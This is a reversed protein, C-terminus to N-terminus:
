RATRKTIAPFNALRHNLPAPSASGGNLCNHCLTGQLDGCLHRRRINRASDGHWAEGLGVVNLDEIALLNQYDNCCVRLYGERTINAQNFPVMCVSPLQPDVPLDPTQGSQNTAITRYIENVYPRVLEELRAFSAANQQIEVFSVALFVNSRSQVVYKHTLRLNDLVREFHDRGHVSLYTERDGANISFKISDIGADVIAAIKKETLLTGNTTLYVYEYGISKLFQILEELHACTLPESGSHLGCERAGLEFAQRVIRRFAEFDIMGKPRTMESYACFTCEHNCINSVEVLVIRPFPPTESYVASEVLTRDRLLLWDEPWKQEPKSNDSM